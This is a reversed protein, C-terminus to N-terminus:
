STPATAPTAKRKGRRGTMLADYAERGLLRRLAGRLVGNHSFGLARSEVLLPSGARIRDLIPQLQAGTLEIKSRPM